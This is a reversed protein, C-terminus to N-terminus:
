HFVIAQIQVLGCIQLANIIVVSKKTQIIAAIMMTIVGSSKLCVVSIKANSFIAQRALQSNVLQHSMRNILVIPLATVFGSKRYANHEIQVGFNILFVHLIILRVLNKRMVSIVVIMYEM